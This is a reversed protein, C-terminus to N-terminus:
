LAIANDAVINLILSALCLRDSKSLQEIYNHYIQQITQKVNVM